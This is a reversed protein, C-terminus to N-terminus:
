RACGPPRTPSSAGTGCCRARATTATSSSSPGTWAASPASPKWSASSCGCAAPRRSCSTPSGRVGPRPQLRLPPRLPQAPAPSARVHLARPRAPAARLELLAELSLRSVLAQAYTSLRDVGAMQFFGTEFGLIRGAALREGLARPLAGFVWLRLFVAAHLAPLDPEVDVNEGHLFPSTSRPQPAPRLHLPPVFGATRYGAKRLDQLLSSDGLLAERVTAATSGRPWRGTLMGPLVEQTVRTTATARFRVFGELTALAGPSLAPDVLDNELADFLVHYVNPRGPDVAPGLEAVLDRPPPPPRRDLRTAFATAERGLLLLALVALLPELPRPGVRRALAVTVALWAAAFLSAGVGTDLVWCVLHAGAPLARLFTWAVFGFGSSYIAVLAARALPSGDARQLLVALLAAAAGAAWFPHLVSLTRDLDQQNRLFLEHASSLVALPPFLAALARKLAGRAM